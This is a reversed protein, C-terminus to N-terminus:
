IHVIQALWTLCKMKRPNKERKWALFIDKKDPIVVLKLKASNRFSELLFKLNTQNLNTFQVVYSMKEARM